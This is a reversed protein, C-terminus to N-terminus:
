NEKNHIIKYKIEAMKWDEITDIDQIAYENMEYM